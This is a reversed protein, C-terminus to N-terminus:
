QHAAITKRGNMKLQNINGKKDNFTNEQTEDSDIEVVSQWPIPNVYAPKAKQHPLLGQTAPKPKNKSNERWKEYAKSSLELRREREEIMKRQKMEQEKHRTKQEEKKKQIWQRLYLTKAVSAKDEIEKLRRQLELENELIAKRELEQLRKREVWKLFNEKELQAKAEKERAMREEEEQRKKAAREEEEKKRQTAEDKRRIWESHGIRKGLDAGNSAQYDSISPGTSFSMSVRVQRNDPRYKDQKTTENQGINTPVSSIKCRRETQVTKGSSQDVSRVTFPESFLTTDSLSTSYCRYTSRGTGDQGEQVEQGPYEIAHNVNTADKMSPLDITSSESDNDNADIVHGNCYRDNEPKHIQAVDDHEEKGISQTYIAPNIYRIEPISSSNKAADEHTRDYNTRHDIFAIRRQDSESSDSETKWSDIDSDNVM